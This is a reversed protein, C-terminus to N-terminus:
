LGQGVAARLGEVENLLQATVREADEKQDMAVDQEMQAIICEQRAEDQERLAHEREGRVTRLSSRLEEIVLTLQDREERVKQAEEEDKRTRDLVEVLKEGAEQANAIVEQYCIRLDALESGLGVARQRSEALQVEAVAARQAEVALREWVEREYCLFESKARSCDYLAQVFSWM